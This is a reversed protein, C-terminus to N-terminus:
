IKPLFIVGKNCRTLVKQRVLLRAVSVVVLAQQLTRATLHELLLQRRVVRHIRSVKSHDRVRAKGSLFVLYYSVRTLAREFSNKM